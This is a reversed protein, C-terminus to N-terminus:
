VSVQFGKTAANLKYHSSAMGLALGRGSALFFDAHFFFFFQMMIPLLQPRSLSFPHSTIIAQGNPFPYLIKRGLGSHISSCIALRM